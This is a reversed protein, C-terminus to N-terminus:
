LPQVMVNPAFLEARLAGRALLANVIDASSPPFPGSLSDSLDARPREPRWCGPMGGPENRLFCYGKPAHSLAHDAGEGSRDRPSATNLAADRAGRIRGRQLTARYPAGWIELM